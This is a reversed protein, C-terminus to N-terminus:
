LTGSAFFLWLHLHIQILRSLDPWSSVNASNFFAVHQLNPFQVTKTTGKLVQYLNNIIQSAPTHPKCWQGSVRPTPCTDVQHIAAKPRFCSYAESFIIGITYGSEPPYRFKVAQPQWHCSGVWLRWQANLWFRHEGQRPRPTLAPTKTQLSLTALYLFVVAYNICFFQMVQRTIWHCSDQRNIYLVRM